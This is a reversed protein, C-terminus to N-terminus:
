GPLLCREGRDIYHADVRLTLRRPGGGSVDLEEPLVFRVPPAELAGTEKGHLAPLSFIHLGRPYVVGDGDLEDLTVAAAVRREPQVAEFRLLIDLVQGGDGPVLPLPRCALLGGGDLTLVQTLEM